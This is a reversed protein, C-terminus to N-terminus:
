CVHGKRELVLSEVKWQMNSMNKTNMKPDLILSVWCFRSPRFIVSVSEAFHADLNDAAVCQVTGKINKGIQPVFVGKFYQKRRFAIGLPSQDETAKTLLNALCFASALEQKKQM